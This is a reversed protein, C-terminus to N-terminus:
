DYYDVVVYLIKEFLAETGDTSGDLPHLRFHQHDIIMRGVTRDFVKARTERFDSKDLILIIRSKGLGIVLRDPDTASFIDEQQVGVGHYALLTHAGKTEKHVFVRLRAADPHFHQVPM